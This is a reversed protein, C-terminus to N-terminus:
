CNYFLLVEWYIQARLRNLKTKGGEVNERAPSVFSKSMKMYLIVNWWNSLYIRRIKARFFGWFSREYYNPYPFNIDAWNM